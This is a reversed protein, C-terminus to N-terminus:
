SQRLEIRAYPSPSVNKNHLIVVYTPMIFMLFCYLWAFMAFALDCQCLIPCPLKEVFIADM